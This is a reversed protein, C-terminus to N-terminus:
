REYVSKGFNLLTHFFLLSPHLFQAVFIFIEGPRDWLIPNILLPFLAMYFPGQIGEDRVELLLSLVQFVYPLFETVDDRLIGEFVPLLVTEFNSLFERKTKPM